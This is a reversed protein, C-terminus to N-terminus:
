FSVALLGVPVAVLLGAAAWILAVATRSLRPVPVLLRTVRACYGGFATAVRAHGRGM